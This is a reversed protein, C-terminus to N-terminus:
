HDFFFCLLKFFRIVDINPEEDLIIINHLGEDLYDGNMKLLDIVISRYPNGNNDVIEIINRSTSTSSGMKELITKYSVYSKM